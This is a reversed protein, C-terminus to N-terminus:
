EKTWDLPTNEKEKSWLVKQALILGIFFGVFLTFIINFNTVDPIYGTNSSIEYFLDFIPNTTVEKKMYRVEDGIFFPTLILLNIFLCVLCLVLIIIITLLINILKKKKKM